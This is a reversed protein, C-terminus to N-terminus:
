GGGAPDPTPDPPATPELDRRRAKVLRPPRLQGAREFLSFTRDTCLTVGSVAEVFAEVEPTREAEILRM